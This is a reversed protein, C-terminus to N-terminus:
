QPVATTKCSRLQPLERKYTVGPPTLLRVEVDEVGTLESLMESIHPNLAEVAQQFGNNFETCANYVSTYRQNGARALIAKDIAEWLEGVTKLLGGSVTVPFDHILYRVAIEFLNVNGDGHKYNTDLLARYDLCACRLATDVVRADSSGLDCPHQGFSWVAGPLDDDFKVEVKCNAEPEGSFVNKYQSLTRSPKLAFFERLAHFVSSKGSGNEGYVLLNKSALEFTFTEGGPFARFDTLALTKIRLTM